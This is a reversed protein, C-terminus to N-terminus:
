LGYDEKQKDDLDEYMRIDDLGEFEESLVKKKAFKDEDTKPIQEELIKIEAELDDDTLPQSEIDKELSENTEEKKDSAIHEESM